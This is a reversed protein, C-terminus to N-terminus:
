DSASVSQDRRGTPGGHAATSQRVVLEPEPSSIVTHSVDEVGGVLRSVAAAGLASLPMRVTTVPPWISDAYWVDHIAVISIDAPVRLGRQHFEALVGLAANLNAVVLATPLPGRAMLESVAARGNEGSYGLDTMWEANIPLGREALAARYGAERRQGTASGPISGVFGIDRHGLSVLHDVAVRIGAADDLVITSIPSDNMSNILITPTNQSALYDLNSAPTGDPLQLIVGDIRAEAVLRRLWESDDQLQEARGLVIALGRLAAEHEAGRALEAFVASTVDPVVLAITRTRSTRLSRASHNPVYFLERAAVLVRQRTEDTVRLTPDGTLVRSVAGPSVGARAAVDSIKVVIEVKRERTPPLPL